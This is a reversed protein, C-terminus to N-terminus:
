FDLHTRSWMQAKDDLWSEIWQTKINSQSLDDSYLQNKSLSEENSDVQNKKYRTKVVEWSRLLTEMTSIESENTSEIDTMQHPIKRASKITPIKRDLTRTELGQSLSRFIPLRHLNYFKIDHSPMSTQSVRPIQGRILQM